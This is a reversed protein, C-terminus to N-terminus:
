KDKFVTAITDEKKTDNALKEDMPKMRPVTCAILPSFALINALTPSFINNTAVKPVTNVPVITPKNM